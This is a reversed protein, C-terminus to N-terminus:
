ILNCKLTIINELLSSASRVNKEEGATYILNDDHSFMAHAIPKTHGNLMIPDASLNNLDFLRLVKEHGGTVAIPASHAFDATKVIHKHQFTHLDTGSVADWLKRCFVIFFIDVWLM